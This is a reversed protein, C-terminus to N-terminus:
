VKSSAITRRIWIAYGEGAALNGLALGSAYATCNHAFTVAPDPATSEDAITDATGDKGALDLGIDIETNTTNAEIWVKASSLTLTAHENHIYICRYEIDGAAAEAGTVDDFISNFTKTKTIVGGGATSMAGGLAAAPDTNSAGGSLRWILDTTAIAM